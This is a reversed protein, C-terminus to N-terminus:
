TKEDVSLVIAREPPALYLGVVDRVKPVLDPDTSWKFTETRHPKLGASRWIRWVTTESMGVRHALRRVSWHTTGAPPPELTLAIVRDRAERSYTPPRGPRPEDVLGALGDRAYKTRWLLVTMPSVGLEAAITRNPTGEAAHLVIRARQALRQETTRARVLARLAELNSEDISLPPAPHNAMSSLTAAIM